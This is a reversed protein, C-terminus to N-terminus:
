GNNKEKHTVLGLIVYAHNSCTTLSQEHCATRKLKVEEVAPKDGPHLRLPKECVHM